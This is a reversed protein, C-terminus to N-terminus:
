ESIKEQNNIEDMLELWEEHKEELLKGLRKNERLVNELLLTTQEITKPENLQNLIGLVIEKEIMEDHPYNQSSETELGEIEKIAWEINKM